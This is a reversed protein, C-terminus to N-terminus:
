AMCSDCIGKIVVNAEQPAFNDPLNIAPIKVKPLCRTELCVKCYFHVHTDQPYDCECTEACLAYKVAGSGDDISHIIKHEEFTKLTRFLTVRDTFELNEELDKLSIANTHNSFYDLVLMRM